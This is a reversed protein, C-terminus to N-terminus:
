IQKRQVGGTTQNEIFGRSLVVRSDEGRLNLNAFCDFAHFIYRPDTSTRLSPNTLRARLHDTLSAFGHGNCHRSDNLLSSPISGVQSGDHTDKWFISPYMMAEPYVLPVSHGKSTSVMRELFAAQYRRTRIPRDRRILCSGVANLVIHGSIYTKACWIPTTRRAANTFHIAYEDAVNDGLDHPDVEDDVVFAQTCELDANVSLRSFISGNDSEEGSANDGELELQERGTTGSDNNVDDEPSVSFDGGSHGCGGDSNEGNTSAGSSLSLDGETRGCNCEGDETSTGSSVSVDQSVDSDSGHHPDESYVTFRRLCGRNPVAHVRCVTVGCGVEVCCLYGIKGCPGPGESKECTCRTLCGKTNIAAVLPKDHMDCYNNAQGGIYGFYADRLNGFDPPKVQVYVAINWSRVDDELPGDGHVKVAGQAGRNQKWWSPFQRGGHRVFFHGTWRNAETTNVSTVAVYRLEWDNTNDTELRSPLLSTSDNAIGGDSDERVVVITHKGDLVTSNVRGLLHLDAFWVSAVDQLLGLQAVFNERDFTDSHIGAVTAHAKQITTKLGFPNNRSVRNCQRSFCDKMTRALVWGQWESTRKVSQVTARWFSPISSLMSVLIWLCRTDVHPVNYAPIRVVRGGHSDVCHTRVIEAKWPPRVLVARVTDGEQFRSNDLVRADDFVTVEGTGATDLFCQLRICDEYPVFTSGHLHRGWLSESVVNGDVTLNLSREIAADTEYQAALWSPIVGMAAHRSTLGRIDARGCFSLLQDAKAVFSTFDHRGYDVLSLTDLGVFSGRMEHMQFTTSYAKAKMPSITRPMVVAHANQDSHKCPLFGNPNRPPHIYDWKSGRAHERCVLIYPCGDAGIVVCPTIAWCPNMLLYDLSDIFDERVGRVYTESSWRPVKLLPGLFRLYVSAFDFTEAKHYYETCGWPCRVTPLMYKNMSQVLDALRLEAISRKMDNRAFTVDRFISVPSTVTVEEYESFVGGLETINRIWWHRWVDPIYAWLSCGHHAFIDGNTLLKWLFAPWVTSPVPDQDQILFSACESCLVIEDMGGMDAMRLCSWGVRTKVTTPNYASLNMVCPMDSEVEVPVQSRRCNACSQAEVSNEDDSRTISDENMDLDMREVDSDDNELESPADEVGDSDDASTDSLDLSKEDCTKDSLGGDMEEDNKATEVLTMTDKKVRLISDNDFICEEESCEYKLLPILNRGVEESENECSGVAREDLFMQEQALVLDDDNSSSRDSDSDADYCLSQHYMQPLSTSPAFSGCVCSQYVDIGVRDETVLRKGSLSGYCSPCTNHGFGNCRKSFPMGSVSAFMHRGCTFDDVEVFFSVSGFKLMVKM